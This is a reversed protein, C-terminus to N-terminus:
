GGQWRLNFFPEIHWVTEEERSSFRDRSLIVSAGEMESGAVASGGSRDGAGVVCRSRHVGKSGWTLRREGVGDVDGM